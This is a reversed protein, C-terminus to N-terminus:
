TEKRRRHTLIAGSTLALTAGAILFAATGSGGTSPLEYGSSNTVTLTYSYRYLVNGAEDTIPAGNEDTLAEATVATGDGSGSLINDAQTYTVYLPRTTPEDACTKTRAGTGDVVIRVPETLPLYGDPPLTEVLYYEGGGLKGLAILGTTEDSVLGDAILTPTENRVTRGNKDTVYYDAGFLKFRAGGLPRSSGAETKLISVDFSPM